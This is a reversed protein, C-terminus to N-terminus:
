PKKATGRAVMRKKSHGSHRVLEAAKALHDPDLHGYRLVSSYTKWGGLQMLEQLTVGGQVAWSAFTHRLDHWRLPGVGSREVADQFAKTNCDDITEGLYQFVHDGTPNATKLKRFIKAVERSIPMGHANKGKMQMGPVWLRRARLDIRDWTLRLMARMRLGTMVACDAALQLHPPLERRLADFEVHTLWRFDSKRVNYMPVTPAAQLYGWEVCKRLVARLIAMHRDVTSKARGVLCLERLLQIADRDIARLPEHELHQKFWNLVSLEKAKSSEPVDALWRAAAEAWYVVAAPPGDKFDPRRWWRGKKADAKLDARSIKIEVDVVRLCPPVVLLDIEDGTWTSNPLVCLANKFTNRALIRAVKGESWTMSAAPM